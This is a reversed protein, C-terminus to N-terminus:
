AGIDSIEEFQRMLANAVARVRPVGVMSKASVLHLTERPLPVDLEIPLLREREMLPHRVAGLFMAGLGEECARKQVLFDDSAFVPTFNEVLSELEPRPSLHEFPYGWCIWDVDKPSCPQRLRRVYDPSAFAGAPIDYSDLVTLEPENPARNRLALDAEGRTLDLHKIGSLVELWIKPQRGRFWKAFPVLFDFAVGPPAALRVRGHPARERGAVARDLEAAWRAMQRVAPLLREADETPETGRRGRLFLSVNLQTELEAVRRSATPQGIGLRRAAATLSGAEAVALLLQADDWSIDM